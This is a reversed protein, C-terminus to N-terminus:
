PQDRGREGRLVLAHPNGPYVFQNRSRKEQKSYEPGHPQKFTMRRKPPHVIPAPFGSKNIKSSPIFGFYKLFTVGFEM